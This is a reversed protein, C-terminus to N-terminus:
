EADPQAELDDDKSTLARHADKILEEDIMGLGPLISVPSPETPQRKLIHPKLSDIPM